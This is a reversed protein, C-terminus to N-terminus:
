KTREIARDFTELVEDKTRGPTDNWDSVIWDNGIVEIVLDTAGARLGDAATEVMNLAGLTCYCAAGEIHYGYVRQGEADKAYFGQCWGYNELIWKAAILVEKVTTAQSM